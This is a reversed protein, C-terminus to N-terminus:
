ASRVILIRGCSPCTAVGPGANLEAVRGAPLGVRCASCRTDELVGIGVGHRTARTAEYRKLLAPNLIAALAARERKKTEIQQLIEGGHTKFRSTLEGERRHGETLAAEIKAAQAIGNERKQMQALLDSELVEIRRRLADLEKSVSQLEKPNSIDGSVFKEQEQAMKVGLTAIKDEIVKSSQEIAHVAADTRTKLKEIDGLKARATLIARKEPMEDLEKELRLLALDHEQLELLAHVTDM